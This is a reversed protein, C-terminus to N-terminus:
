PVPRRLRRQRRHLHRHQGHHNGKPQVLNAGMADKNHDPWRPVPQSCRKRDCRLPSGPPSFFKGRSSHACRLPFQKRRVTAAMFGSACGNWRWSECCCLSAKPRVAGFSGHGVRYGRASAEGARGGVRVLGVGRRHAFVGRGCGAAGRNSATHLNWCPRADHRCVMRRSAISSFRWRRPRCANRCGAAALWPTDM